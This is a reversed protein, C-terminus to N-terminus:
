AVLRANEIVKDKDANSYFYSRKGEDWAHLAVWIRETRSLVHEDVELVFVWRSEEPIWKCQEVDVLSLHSPLAHRLIM